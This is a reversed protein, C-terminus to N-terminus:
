EHPFYAFVTAQKKKDSFSVGIFKRNQGIPRAKGDYSFPIGNEDYLKLTHHYKQFFSKKRVLSDATGIKFTFDPNDAQLACLKEIIAQPLKSGKSSRARLAKHRLLEVKPQLNGVPVAKGLITPNTDRSLVVKGVIGPKSDKVIVVKGVIGPKPKKVFGGRRVTSPQSEPDRVEFKQTTEAM